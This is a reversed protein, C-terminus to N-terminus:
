QESAPNRLRAAEGLDDGIDIPQEAEIRGLRGAEHSEKEHEGVAM